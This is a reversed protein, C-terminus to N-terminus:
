LGSLVWEFAHIFGSEVYANTNGSLIPIISGSCIPTCMTGRQRPFYNSKFTKVFPPPCNPQMGLGGGSSLKFHKAIRGGGAPSM